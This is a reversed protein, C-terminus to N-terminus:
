ADEVVEVSRAERLEGLAEVEPELAQRAAGGLRDWLGLRVVLKRGIKRARWTGVFDGGALVAGPRGLAPWLERRRHPDPVLLDRDRAQLFLDFPALLHTATSREAERLATEDEALIWRRESEGNAVVTVEVIDQPWRAEVEGVPADIYGAVQRPTAPGLFHLCARVVDLHPPIEGPAPGEFSPVLLPPSTDPELELGARTAAFRFIQEYIHTAGCVRCFRLYPDPLVSTLASSVDGKAMPQTVIERIRAAVHDLAELPSIGAERLAKAADFLRKAADEESYPATAAAAQALEPRRYFHPAGRLTWILASNDRGPREGNRIRVAWAAGDPGTGQVGLDFIDVRSAPRAPGPELGQVVRRYALVGLRTVPM